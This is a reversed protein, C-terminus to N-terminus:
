ADFIWGVRIGFKERARRCGQEIGDFAATVDEGKWLIVGASLTIEAYRVNQGALRALANYTIIEYDEPTRLHQCITKFAQLFAAFDRTAYLSEVAQRGGAALPSGHRQALLWLTESEVTGELHLHLEAKPLSAIFDQM